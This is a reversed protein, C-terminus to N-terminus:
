FIGIYLIVLKPEYAYLVLKRHNTLMKPCVFSQLLVYNQNSYSSKIEGIASHDDNTYIEFTYPARTTTRKDIFHIIAKLCFLFCAFVLKSWYFRLPEFFISNKLNQVFIFIITWKKLRNCYKTKHIFIIVAVLNWFPCTFIGM